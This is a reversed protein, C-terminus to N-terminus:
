SNILRLFNNSLINNYDEPKLNDKISNIYREEKLLPYDTGFLIKKSGAINVTNKYIDPSYLFPQAACDYMINKFAEKVEPMQEYFVIGGGFHSLVLKLQKHNKILDYLKDFPTSYKGNYDHGVPDNLHIYLVLGNEECAAFIRELYNWLKASFRSNYFALEGVGKFGSNAIDKIFHEIYKFPKSPISAFPIINESRNELFFANHEKCRKETQWCFGLAAAKGTLSGALYRDLTNIDAIPAKKDSYLLKFSSDDLFSDRDQLVAEPFLHTHADIIM